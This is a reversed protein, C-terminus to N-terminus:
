LELSFKDRRPSYKWIMKKSNLRIRMILRTMAMRDSEKEVSARYVFPSKQSM